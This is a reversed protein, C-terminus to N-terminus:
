STTEVSWEANAPILFGLRDLVQEVDSFNEVPHEVRQGQGWSAVLATHVRKM